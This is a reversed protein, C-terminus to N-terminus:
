SGFRNAEVGRILRLFGCISEFIFRAEQADVLENDHAFSENNRVGNYLEFVSIASKMIRLSIPRVRGEAELAKVYKGVRSHLPDDRDCPIGRATLLHAFKKMCYTHLRDLAAQPKNAQVDRGIASVLEELTENDSFKEIGDANPLGADGELRHVIDFFRGSVAPDEQQSWRSQMNARYDWLARLARAVTADDEQRLFSRLRKGKSTGLDRYKDDDIDLGLDGDFFRGFTADSFDLVYGSGMELVHELVSMEGARLKAM